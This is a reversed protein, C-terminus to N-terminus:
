GYVKVIIARSWPSRIQQKFDKTFKMAALGERLAEVEDDSELEDEMVDGFNFAQTYAGPVEGVLKDKFSVVQNWGGIGNKRPSSSVDQGDQFGAHGINKVKKNSQSLADQEETSLMPSRSSEM